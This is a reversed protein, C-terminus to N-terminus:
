LKASKPRNYFRKLVKRRFARFVAGRGGASVPVKGKGGPVGSIMGFTTPQPQVPLKADIAIELLGTAILEQRAEEVSLLPAQGSTLQSLASGVTQLARGRAVQAEEDKEEWVFKLNDPLLANFHNHMKSRLLAFGSRRTQREGRIVGALTKEGGLGSMGIDSLRMGYGACLIAAYKETTKAYLM